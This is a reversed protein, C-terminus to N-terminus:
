KVQAIHRRIVENRWHYIRAIAVSVDTAQDVTRAFCKLIDSKSNIFKNINSINM